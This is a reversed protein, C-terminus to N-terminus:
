KEINRDFITKEIFLVQLDELAPGFITPIKQKILKYFRKQSSLKIEMIFDYPGLATHVSQCDRLEYLSKFFDGIHVKKHKILLIAIIKNETEDIYRMIIAAITLIIIMVFGFPM